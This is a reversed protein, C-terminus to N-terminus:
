KSKMWNNKCNNKKKMKRRSKRWKYKLVVKKIKKSKEGV